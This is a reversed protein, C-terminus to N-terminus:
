ERWRVERLGPDSRLYAQGVLGLALLLLLLPLSRRV